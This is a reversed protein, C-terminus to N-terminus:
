TLEDCEDGNTQDRADTSQQEGNIALNLTNSIADIQKQLQALETTNVNPNDQEDTQNDAQKAIFQSVTKELSEFRQELTKEPESVSLEIGLKKLEPGLQEIISQADGAAQQSNSQQGFTKIQNSLSSIANTLEELKKPDLDGSMTNDEDNEPTESESFSMLKKIVKNILNQETQPESLDSFDFQLFDTTQIGDFTESSLKIQETGVSAPKPTVALGSLYAKGSKQFDIDIEMSTFLIEERSINILKQNPELNAFVQTNGENDKGLKVALVKGYTGYWKPNWHNLNIVACYKNADYSKVAEKLWKEDVERGDVTKGATGICKFGTELAMMM